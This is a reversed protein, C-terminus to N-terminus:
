RPRELVIDRVKRNADADMLAGTMHDGSQRLVIRILGRPARIETMWSGDPQRVYLDLESVIEPQGNVIKEAKLAVTDRSSGHARVTYLAIENKCAPSHVLDVCTSTGRWVGVIGAGQASQAHASDAGIILACVPVAFRILHRM